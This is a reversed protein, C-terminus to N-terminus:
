LMIDGVPELKAPTRENGPFESIDIEITRCITSSPIDDPHSSQRSIAM